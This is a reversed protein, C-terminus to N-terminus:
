VIIEIDEKVVVIKLRLVILERLGCWIFLSDKACSVCGNMRECLELCLSSCVEFKDFLVFQNRLAIIM